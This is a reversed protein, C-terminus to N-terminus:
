VKLYIVEVKNIKIDFFGVIWKFCFVDLLFVIVGRFIVM